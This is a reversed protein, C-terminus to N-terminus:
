GTILKLAMQASQNAQSLMSTGAQVLVNWKAMRTTEAAVDVDTINSIASQLNTQNTTLMSSAFALRSQEAGNVARMSAVDQLAGTITSLDLSGLSTASAVTGVDTASGASYGVTTISFDKINVTGMNELVVTPTTTSIGYARSGVSSGDLSFDITGDTSVTWTASHWNDDTINAAIEDPLNTGAAASPGAYETDVTGVEPTFVGTEQEPNIQVLANIQFAGTPLPNNLTLDTNNNSLSLVGDSVSAEGEGEQTWNDLNAFSDSFLVSGNGGTSGLLNQQAVDVAGTSGLDDTAAVSLGQGEATAFLNIGNFSQEGLSNLESQLQGFESDYNAIDSSNKTPDSALTKLQSIRDLVSAVAQLAGDQTQAFSAADSINSQLSLERNVTAQLKMSVALGGADDAPSTIKTGSSLKNLSKQLQQSSYALNNAAIIAASNTNIVVSM